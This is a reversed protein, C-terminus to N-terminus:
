PGRCLLLVFIKSEIALLLTPAVVDLADSRLLAGVLHPLLPAERGITRAASLVDVVGALKLVIQLLVTQLTMSPLLNAMSTLDENQM